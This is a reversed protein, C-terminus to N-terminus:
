RVAQTETVWPAGRNTLFVLQGNVAPRPKKRVALSERITEVTEPWLPCRRAVATKPRPFTVWSADLDVASMPLTGCDQNGFGCNVALLVMAKFPYGAADIIQRLQDAEFMRPGQKQRLARLIRKSPRKFTPGFRMPHEILGAAYAYNFVVRTCQVGLALTNPNSAKAMSARLQEFDDAALDIVLRHKGFANVLNACTLMYNRFTQQVIDGADRQNEKATLFRNCLDRVTLGDRNSRPTRGAMLDDRQEQFKNLAAQWDDWPGFYHTKGRIKKAWRKTAHPFLPFDPYPKGPKPPKKSRISDAM